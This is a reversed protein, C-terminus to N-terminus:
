QGRAFWAPHQQQDVDAQVGGLLGWCCRGDALLRHQVRRWFAQHQAHILDREVAPVLHQHGAVFPRLRQRQAQAIIQIAELPDHLCRLQLDEAEGAIASLGDRPPDLLYELIGALAKGADSMSAVQKLNALMEVHQLAVSVRQTEGVQAIAGCQEFVKALSVVGVARETEITRRQVTVIQRQNKRM